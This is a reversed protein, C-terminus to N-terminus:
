PHIVPTSPLARSVDFGCQGCERDRSLSHQSDIHCRIDPAVPRPTPAIHGRFSGYRMRQFDCQGEGYRSRPLRADVHSPIESCPAEKAILVSSKDDTPQPSKSSNLPHRHAARVIRCSKPRTVRYGATRLVIGFGPNAVGPVQLLLNGSQTFLQDHAVCRHAGSPQEALLKGVHDFNGRRRVRQSIGGRPLRSASHVKRFQEQFLPIDVIDLCPFERRALGSSRWSASTRSVGYYAKM